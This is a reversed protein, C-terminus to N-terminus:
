AHFFSYLMVSTLVWGLVESFVSAYHDVFIERQLEWVVSLGQSICSNNELLDPM